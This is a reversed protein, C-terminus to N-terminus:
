FPPAAGWDEALTLTAKFLVTGTESRVTASVEGPVGDLVRGRAIGPLAILAERRAAQLDPLQFGEFDPFHVAGDSTDFFYRPM